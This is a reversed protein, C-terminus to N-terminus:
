RPHPAYPVIRLGTFYSADYVVGLVPDDWYVTIADQLGRLVELMKDSGPKQVARLKPYYRFCDPLFQSDADANFLVAVVSKPLVYFVAANGRNRAPNPFSEGYKAELIWHATTSWDSDAAAIRARIASDYYRRLFSLLQSDGRRLLYASLGKLRRADENLKPSHSKLLSHSEVLLAASFLLLELDDRKTQEYQAATMRPVLVARLEAQAKLFAPEDALRKDDVTQGYSALSTVASAVNRLLEYEPTLRAAPAGDSSRSKQIREEEETASQLWEQAFGCEKRLAWIVARKYL